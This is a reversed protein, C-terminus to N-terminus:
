KRWVTPNLDKNVRKQFFFVFVLYVRVRCKVHIVDHHDTFIFFFFFFYRDRCIWKFVPPSKRDCLFRVNEFMKGRALCKSSVKVELDNLSDKTIYMKKAGTIEVCADMATHVVNKMIDFDQHLNDLVSVNLTPKVYFYTWRIQIM